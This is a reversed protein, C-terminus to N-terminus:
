VKRPRGPGRPAAPKPAPKEVVDTKTVATEAKPAVAREEKVEPPRKPKDEVVAEAYGLAVYRHAEADEIDVVDGVKVGADINHFSGAVSLKMRIKM